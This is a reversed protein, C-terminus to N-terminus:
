REGGAGRTRRRRAVRESDDDRPKVTDDAFNCVVRKDGTGSVMDQVDRASRYEIYCKLEQAQAIVGGGEILQYTLDAGASHRVKADVFINKKVKTTGNAKVEVHLTYSGDAKLIGHLREARILQSLATLTTTDDPKNLKASILDTATVLSQTKARLGTLKEVWEKFKAPDAKVDTLDANLKQIDKELKSIEEALAKSDAMLKQCEPTGRRRRGNCGKAKVEEDKKGKEKQKGALEETKDKRSKIAATLDKLLKIRADLKEVNGVAEVKATEVENLLKIIASDESSELLLPTYLAPHYVRVPGTCNTSGTAAGTNFSRVIHSVITNENLTIAQNSFSTDTRFLNLLEAVSKIVGTAIGPAAFALTPDFDAAGSGPAITPDTQELFTKAEENKKDLEGKLVKLQGMISGYLEVGALNGPSHMVLTQVKKAAPLKAGPTIPQTCLSLTLQRTIQRAAEKALMQSEVWGAADTTVSGTPVTVNTPAGLPQVLAKLRAAEAEAREQDAVAKKKLEDALKADRQAQELVPDPTPTPNPTPTQTPTQTPIAPPTYAFTTAARTPTSFPLSTIIITIALFLRM